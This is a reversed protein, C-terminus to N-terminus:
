GDTFCVIKTETIHRCLNPDINACTVGQNGFADVM